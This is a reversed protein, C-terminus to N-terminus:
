VQHKNLNCALMMRKQLPTRCAQILFNHSFRSFLKPPSKYARYIIQNVKQSERNIKVGRLELSLNFFWWVYFHLKRHSSSTKLFYAILGFINAILSLHVSKFSCIVYWILYWLWIFPNTFKDKRMQHYLVTHHNRCSWDCMSISSM